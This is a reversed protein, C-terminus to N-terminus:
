QPHWPCARKGAPIFPKVAKQLCELKVSCEASLCQIQAPSREAIGDSRVVAKAILM